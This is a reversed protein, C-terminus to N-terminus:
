DCCFTLEFVVEFNCFRWIKAAGLLQCVVVPEVYNSRRYVTLRTEAPAVRLTPGSLFVHSCFPFRLFYQCGERPVYMDCGGQWSPTVFSSLCLCPRLVVFSCLRWCIGVRRVACLWFVLAMGWVFFLSFLSGCGMNCAHLIMLSVFSVGLCSFFLSFLGLACPLRFVVYSLRSLRSTVRSVYAVVFSLLRSAITTSSFYAFLTIASFFFLCSLPHFM